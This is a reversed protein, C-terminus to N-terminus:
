VSCQRSVRRLVIWVRLVEWVLVLLVEGVEGCWILQNLVSRKEFLNWMACCCKPDSEVALVERLQGQCIGVAVIDGCPPFHSVPLVPSPAM